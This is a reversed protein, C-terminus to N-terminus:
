PRGALVSDDPISRAIPSAGYQWGGSADTWEPLPAFLNGTTPPAPAKRVHRLEIMRAVFWEALSPAVVELRILFGAGFGVPVMPRPREAQRVIARAVQEASSVPSMARLARGTYNAAHQFIPTDISAPLVACAHIGTGRLEQRLVLTLGLVGFKAATYSSFHAMPVRSGISGVNVLVGDDQQRFQRLAARAGTAYGFLNTEIVRRVVASPVDEFRGAAYVGANNVWVDIRGFREVARRALGEVAAEDTVDTPVALARGGVRECQAAVDNLPEARRAALVVATRHEAFALATARGIGSSAGTIVVVANTLPRPPGNMRM